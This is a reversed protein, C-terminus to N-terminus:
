RDLSTEFRDIILDMIHDLQTDIIQTSDDAEYWDIIRKVGSSFPITAQFDPVMTKIKKNSFIMSHAKDGLLSAGWKHDFRNIYSSPVHIFDTKMDLTDAFAKYIQNWTLIEDSTIHYSEGIADGKGLLGIFGKAFDRNHTLTWLSTGDGHIIVKKGKKMRDIVTYQGHIPILTKDYTHSPRVITIPFGQKHFIDVLYRECAIKDRSYQWYPNHLNASETLPLRIPPKEYVSASSIFIFQGVKGKFLEYDIRVHEENYAIWDVVVDFNLKAVASKVNSPNRIDAHILKVSDPPTRISLGRNLIWLDIGRQMCLETCASSIIGTGGIFLVKLKM